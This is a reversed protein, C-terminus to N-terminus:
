VAESYKQIPSLIPSRLMMNKQKRKKLNSHLYVLFNSGIDTKLFLDDAGAELVTKRYYVADMMTMAIILCDPLMKRIRRITELSDKVSSDLDILSIEPCLDNVTSLGHKDWTTAGIVTVQEESQLFRTLLQAFLPNHDILLVSIDKMAGRVEPINNKWQVIYNPISRFLIGFLWMAHM